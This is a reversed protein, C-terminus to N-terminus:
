PCLAELPYNGLFRYGTPIFARILPAAVFHKAIDRDERGAGPANAPVYIKRSIIGLLCKEGADFVCSGSNFTTAVDRIVTSFRERVWLQQSGNQKLQPIVADAQTLVTLMSHVTLAGTANRAAPSESEGLPANDSVRSVTSVTNHCRNEGVATIRITRTGLRGERGLVIEIGLTPLFTQTERPGDRL